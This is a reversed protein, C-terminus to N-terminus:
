IGVVAKFAECCRLIERRNDLPKMADSRQSPLRPACFTVTTPNPPYTGHRVHTSLEETVPIKFFVPSTGNM